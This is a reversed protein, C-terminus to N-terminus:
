RRAGDAVKTLRVTVPRATIDARALNNSPTRDTGEGIASVANRARGTDRVKLVVTITVSRGSAITGLECSMPVRRTCTGQTARVSVFTSQANFTDALRVNPAADPGDNRVVIRYTVKQGVYPRSVSARKSIVLDFVPPVIPTVAPPDNPTPTQPPTPTPTSTSPDSPTPPAAEVCVRASGQNDAEDPDQNAGTVRATNTTCTGAGAATATVLVQASGGDRLRGLDCTVTNGATTCVGQSSEAAVLTLGAPLADIVRVHRNDSPGDNRVVLTYMVQGGSSPLTAKSATKTLSLNSRGELAPCVTAVNNSTDPDAIDSAVTATNQPCDEQSAPVAVTITFTQSAGSALTGAACTVTSGAATCADSASVFTTGAPLQDTVRANVAADPGRNSAVLTYTLNRGPVVPSPADKTLSLDASAQRTCTQASANNNGPTPDAGNGVVSVTNTLCANFSAPM